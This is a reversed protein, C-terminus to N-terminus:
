AQSLSDRQWLEFVLQPFEVRLQNVLGDLEGVRSLAQMTASGKSKRTLATEEYLFLKQAPPLIAQLHQAFHDLDPEDGRITLTYLAWGTADEDPRRIYKAKKLIATHNFLREMVRGDRGANMKFNKIITESWNEPFNYKWYLHTVFYANHNSDIVKKPYAWYGFDRGPPTIWCSDQEQDAEYSVFGVSKFKSAARYIVEDAGEAGMILNFTCTTPSTRSFSYDWDGCDRWDAAKFICGIDDDDEDFDPDEEIKKELWGSPDCFRDWEDTIYEELADLDKPTGVIVTYSESADSM